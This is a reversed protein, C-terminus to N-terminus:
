DRCPIGYLIEDIIQRPTRGVSSKGNFRFNAETVRDLGGHSWFQRIPSPCGKVNGDEVGAETTNVWHFMERHHEWAYAGLCNSESTHGYKADATYIYDDFEMRHRNAIFGRMAGFLGRPYVLPLRRMFEAHPKFGLVRQVGGRWPMANSHGPCNLDEYTTYLMLPKGDASFFPEPTFPGAAITDSGLLFIADALPCLEDARMMAIQARM